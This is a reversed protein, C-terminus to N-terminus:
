KLKIIKILSFKLYTGEETTIRLTDSAMGLPNVAVAVIEELNDPLDHLTLAWVGEVIEEIQFAECPTIEVGQKYWKLEPKPCGEVKIELRFCRPRTLPTCFARARVCAIQKHASNSCCKEFLTNKRERIPTGLHWKSYIQLADLLSLFKCSLGILIVYARVKNQRRNAAEGGHAIPLAAGHRDAGGRAVRTGGRVRRIFESFANFAKL